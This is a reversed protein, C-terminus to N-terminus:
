EEAEVFEGGQLKYWTDAKIKKGDVLVTKVTEIHWTDTCKWEALVLWDGVEGKAQGDIGFAAAIADKGHVEAHGRDGQAAAHGWTVRPPPNPKPNLM